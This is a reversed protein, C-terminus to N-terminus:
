KIIFEVVIEDCDCCYIQEFDNDIMNKDIDYIQKMDKGSSDVRLKAMISIERYFKKDNGCNNCKLNM